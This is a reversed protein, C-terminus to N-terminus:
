FASQLNPWINKLLLTPTVFNLQGDEGLFTFEILIKFFIQIKKQIKFIM